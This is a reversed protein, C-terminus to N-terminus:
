WVAAVSGGFFLAAVLAIVTPIWGGMALTRTIKNFFINWKVSDWKKDNAIKAYFNYHYNAMQELAVSSVLGLISLAIITSTIDASPVVFTVTSLLLSSISVYNFGFWHPKKSLRNFMRFKEKNDKYKNNPLDPLLWQSFKGRRKRDKYVM